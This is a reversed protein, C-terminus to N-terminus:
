VHAGSKSDDHEPSKGHRVQEIKVVSIDSLVAKTDHFDITKTDNMMIGSQGGDNLAAEIPPGSLATVGGM